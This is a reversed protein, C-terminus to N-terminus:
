GGFPEFDKRFLESVGPTELVMETFVLDGLSGCCLFQHEVLYTSTNSGGQSGSIYLCTRLHSNLRMPDDRGSSDPSQLDLLCVFTCLAPSLPQLDLKQGNRRM